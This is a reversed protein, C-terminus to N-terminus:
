ADIPRLVLSWGKQKEKSEAPSDDRSDGGERRPPSDDAAGDDAESPRLSYDFRGIEVFGAAMHARVSPENALDIATAIASVGKQALAAAQADYLATMLGQRRFSRAVCCQGGLVYDRETLTAGRWQLSEIMAFFPEYITCLERSTSRRRLAFPSASLSYGVVEATGPNEGLAVAQPAIDALEYLWREEHQLTVFGQEAAESAKLRGGSLHNDRQLSRIGAICSTLSPSSSDLLVMRIAVPLASLLFM